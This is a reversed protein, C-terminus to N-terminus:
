IEENEDALLWANMGQVNASYVLILFDLTDLRDMPNAASEPDRYFNFARINPRATTVGTESRYFAVVKDREANTCYVWYGFAIYGLANTARTSPLREPETDYRGVVLCPLRHQPRTPPGGPQLEPAGGPYANANVEVLVSHPTRM